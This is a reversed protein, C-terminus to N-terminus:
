EWYKVARSTKGSFDKNGTGEDFKHHGHTYVEDVGM